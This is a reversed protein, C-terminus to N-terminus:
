EEGADYPEDNSNFTESHRILYHDEGGGRVILRVYARSEYRKGRLDINTHTLTDPHSFQGYKGGIRQPDEGNPHPHDREITPKGTLAHKFRSWAYIRTEYPNYAWAYCDIKIADGTYYQRYLYSCASVNRAKKPPDEVETKVIPKFVIFDRFEYDSWGNNDDDYWWVKAAVRYKKGKIHGPCDSVDPSFYAYTTAGDGQTAGVYQLSHGDDPHGIYWDIVDYPEDTEMTVYDYVYGWNYIESSIEMYVINIDADSSNVFGVFIFAALVAATLIFKYRSM